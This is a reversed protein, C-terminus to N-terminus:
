LFIVYFKLCFLLLRELVGMVALSDELWEDGALMTCMANVQKGVSEGEEFTSLNPLTKRLKIVAPSITKVSLITGSVHSVSLLCKNFKILTKALM